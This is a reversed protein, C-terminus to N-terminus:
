RRKHIFVGDEECSGVLWLTVSGWKGITVARKLLVWPNSEKDLKEIGRRTSELIVKWIFGGLSLEQDWSQGRPCGLKLFNIRPIWGESFSQPVPDTELWVVALLLHYSPVAAMRYCCSIQPLTPYPIPPLTPPTPPFSSMHRILFEKHSVLPPLLFLCAHNICPDALYLRFISLQWVVTGSLATWPSSSPFDEWHVSSQAILKTWQSSTSLSITWPLSVCLSLLLPLYSLWPGSLFLIPFNFILLVPFFCITPDIPTPALFSINTYWTLESFM